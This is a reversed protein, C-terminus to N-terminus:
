VSDNQFFLEPRDSLINEKMWILLNKVNGLFLILISILFIFHKEIFASVNGQGM